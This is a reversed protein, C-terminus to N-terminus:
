QFKLDCSFRPVDQSVLCSDAERTSNLEKDLYLAVFCLPESVATDILVFKRVLGDTRKPASSPCLVSRRFM